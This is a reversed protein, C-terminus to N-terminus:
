MIRRFHIETKVGEETESLTFETQGESLPIEIPFPGLLM